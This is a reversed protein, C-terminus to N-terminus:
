VAEGASETMTVLGSTARMTADVHIWRQGLFQKVKVATEAEQKHGM